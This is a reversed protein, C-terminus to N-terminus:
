KHYISISSGSKDNIEVMKKVFEPGHGDHDRNNNTVFLYAHIMEHLLTNIFDQKPRFQLLKESLRISCFGQKFHYYCLGACLTMRNSWKVEVHSLLGEFYLENFYLFLQHLDPFSDESDDM